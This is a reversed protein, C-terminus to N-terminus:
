ARSLNRISRKKYAGSFRRSPKRKQTKKGSGNAAHRRSQRKKLLQNALLLSAPVMNATTFLGGMGGRSRSRGNNARKSKHSKHSKRRGGNQLNSM